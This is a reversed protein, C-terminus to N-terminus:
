EFRMIYYTNNDVNITDYTNDYSNIDSYDSNRSLEEEICELDVYDKITFGYDKLYQLPDRRVQYVMDDVKEDIMSESVEKSDNISEIEDEAKTKNEEAEDILEQLEQQRQNYGDEDDTDFEMETQEDSKESIYEDLEIIYDELEEIRKEQSSSLELDDDDFWSEPNEEIQYRYDEEAIEVVADTDICNELAYESLGDLGVDDLFNKWYEKLAVDMEDETGVTYIRYQSGNRLPIVNFSDLGYSYNGQPVITNYIDNSKEELESIEDELERLKDYLESSEDPDESDDYEKEIRAFRRKLEVLNEKEDDDITEIEGENVLYEFLANVKNAEDSKGVEWENNERREENEAFWEADQKRLRAAEMPTGSDWIYGNAIGDPLKSINTHSINLSGDVYAVNGLTTIPRRSVNLDGTIYLPKGGFKKIKTFGPSNDSFNLLQIYEDPSIHYVDDSEEEEVILNILRRLGRHNINQKM